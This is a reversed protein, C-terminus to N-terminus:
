LVGLAKAVNQFDGPIRDLVQVLGTSALTQNYQGPSASKSLALFDSQAKSADSTLQNAAASASSPVSIGRLTAGFTGFSQSMQGDLATVCSINGKCATTKSEFSLLRSNLRAYAGDVQIAADAANLTSNGSVSSSIAAIGAIYGALIVAGLVLFLGILRKAATSLVLRWPQDGGLWSIAAASAGYGAPAGYAPGGYAPPGYGAQGSGPEGWEPVGSAPQSYGPGGSGPQGYGPQAAGSAGFSTEGYGPGGSGPQGYGPQAAGSAGFPTEGYGPGGSGPQGYGPQAAGSAGFSTEGYGPEAPAPQTEGYAALQTEEYGPQAAGPQGWGPQGYGPAPFGGSGPPVAGPGPYAPGLSPPPPYSGAPRGPQDGFLGGPYTSTLMFFYGYLRVEYRLGAAFAEYLASPMRGAVLVILWTIFLVITQMGYILLVGVMWAPIVLIIRFLVALRNLPGPQVALRVPYGSDAFEFPPYTDTLLALYALVRTYWRLFGTLFDALGSPLRGTLLAAFWCVLLVVEAAIGLVYLVVLHPVALILRVLVTLRNQNAPAAFAVFIENSSAPAADYGSYAPAPEWPLQTM